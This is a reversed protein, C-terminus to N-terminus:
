ILRVQHPKVVRSLQPALFVDPESTPHNVNILVNGDICPEVVDYKSSSLSLSFSLSLSLSSLFLNLFPFKNNHRLYLFYHLM